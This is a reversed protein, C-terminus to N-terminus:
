GDVEAVQPPGPLRHPRLLHSRPINKTQQLFIKHFNLNVDQQFKQNLVAFM